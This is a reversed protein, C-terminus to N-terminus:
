WIRNKIANGQFDFIEVINIMMAVPPDIQLFSQMKKRVVDMLGM